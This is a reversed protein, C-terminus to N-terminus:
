SSSSRSNQFNTCVDSIVLKVTYLFNLWMNSTLGKIQANKKRELSNFHYPKQHSGGPTHSSQDSKAINKTIKTNILLKLKRSLQTQCSFHNIVEPSPSM